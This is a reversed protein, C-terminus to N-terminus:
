SPQYYDGHAIQAQPKPKLKEKYHNYIEEDPIVSNCDKCYVNHWPTNDQHTLASLYVGDYRGYLDWMKDLFKKDETTIKDQKIPNPIKETIESKGYGKLSQYLSPFVPGFDWAIPVEDILREKNETIALYWGYSIYVLKIVKMPTLNGEKAYKEIFYNAIETPNYSMTEEGKKFM